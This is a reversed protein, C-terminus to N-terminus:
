KGLDSLIKDFLPKIEPIREKITKWVLKLNVGFYEHIVKDRMGAMGKWPIESYNERTDDPINKVGEGIIELARVVAFVTKDDQIFEDYSMDKVFKLVKDMADVIDQIYDGIERKM